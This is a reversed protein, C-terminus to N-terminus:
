KYIILASHLEKSNSSGNKFTATVSYKIDCLINLKVSALFENIEDELSSSDIASIIKVKEYNM